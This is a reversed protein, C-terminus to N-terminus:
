SYSTTHTTRTKKNNRTYKRYRYRLTNRYINVYNPESDPFFVVPPTKIAFLALTFVFFLVIGILFFIPKKGELAFRLFKAYTNEIRPMSYEMFYNGGPTLVYRNIISIVVAAIFLGGIINQNIVYLLVAVLLLIANRAWFKGNKSKEANGIKIWDATLVPNVVM